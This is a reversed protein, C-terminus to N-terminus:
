TFGPGRCCAASAAAPAASTPSSGASSAFTSFKKDLRPAHCRPCTLGDAGEGMRQLVEFRHGCETCQYEYLPM